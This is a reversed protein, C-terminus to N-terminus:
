HMFYQRRLKRNPYITKLFLEKKEIDEIYPICYIEDNQEFLFMHQGPYKQPNHDKIVRIWKGCAILDAFGSFSLRRKEQLWANKEESFKIQYEEYM